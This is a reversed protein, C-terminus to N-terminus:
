ESKTWRDAMAKGLDAYKALISADPRNELNLSAMVAQGPTIKAPPTVEGDKNDSNEELDKDEKKAAEKDVEKDAEKKAAEALKAADEEAKADTKADEGAKALEAIVAERISVLDSRYSAFDEDTMERVKVSQGEKDSNVVGADELDGMRTEQLRDKKMGQIETEVKGIKENSAELDKRAVELESTLEQGRTEEETLKSQLDAVEGNKTELETTLDSISSAAKRLEIETSKRIETEEKKDFLEAVVAAVQKELEKKEM